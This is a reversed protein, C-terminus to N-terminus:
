CPGQQNLALLHGHSLSPPFRVIRCPCWLAPAALRRGSIGPLRLSFQPPQLLTLSLSCSAPWMKSGRVRVRVRVRTRRDRSLWAAHARMSLGGPLTEGRLRVCMGLRPTYISDTEMQHVPCRGGPWLPLWAPSM